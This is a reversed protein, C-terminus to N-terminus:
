GPQAQTWLQSDVTTLGDSSGPLLLVAGDAVIGGGETREECADNCYANGLGVALDDRGDGDVDGAAMVSGFGAYREPARPVGTTRMSRVRGPVIGGGADEFTLMAGEGFRGLVGM